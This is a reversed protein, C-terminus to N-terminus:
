LLQAPQNRSAPGAVKQTALTLNMAARLRAMADQLLSFARTNLVPSLMKGEHRHHIYMMSM